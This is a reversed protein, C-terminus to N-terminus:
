QLIVIAYLDGKDDVLYRKKYFYTDVEVTEGDEGFGELEYEDQYEDYTWTKGDLEMESTTVYELEIEEGYDELEDKTYAKQSDDITYYADDKEIERLEPESEGTAVVLTGEGNRGEAKVSEMPESEEDMQESVNAEYYYVTDDGELLKHYEDAVRGASTKQSQTQNQASDTEGNEQKNGCASIAFIICVSLAIAIAKKM